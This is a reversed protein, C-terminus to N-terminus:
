AMQTYLEELKQYLQEIEKQTQALQKLLDPSPKGQALLFQQEHQM